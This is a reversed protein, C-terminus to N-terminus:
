EDEWPFDAKLGVYIIRGLPSRTDGVRNPDQQVDTVNLSGVYLQSRPWVERGVRVDINEYGPARTNEDLFANTVIRARVYFELKWGPEIRLSTTVAHPPRGQLPRDNTDDRTWTYAYSSEARLFPAPRFAM